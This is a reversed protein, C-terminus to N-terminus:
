LNQNDTRQNIRSWGLGSHKGTVLFAKDFDLPEALGYKNNEDLETRSSNYSLFDMEAHTFTHNFGTISALM